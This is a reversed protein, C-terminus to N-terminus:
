QERPNPRFTDDPEGFLITGLFGPIVGLEKVNDTFTQQFLFDIDMQALNDMILKLQINELEILTDIQQRKEEGSLPLNMIRNREQRSDRLIIEGAKLFESVGHFAMVEKSMIPNKDDEFLRNKIDGYLATLFAENRKSLDMQAIDIQKLDRARKILKQWEKHYQSNKIPSAVNFRRTVVSLANNFSSFDAEDERKAIREGTLDEKPILNEVIDFPYQLIGTFYSGILYDIIIPSMQTKEQGEKSRFLFSSLNTSYNSLKKAIERTSARTQLQNIKRLEYVGLVPAGSYFNTNFGLEIFPRLGAPIPTGPLIQSISEAVYRRTVGDSRKFMGDLLGVAVNGFVGLDYPKPFPIFPVEKDLVIKKQLKSEKHDINPLLYNLQKIQDNVLSYEKFKSNFMYLSIEPAVVTASILAAAKAPNEGFLRGTRYLGQISANLFMTNRSFANLLASNGRMGFDTSVERGLFAAGMDSFGAAKALQYEGMRTAYEASEVIKKYGRWGGGLKRFLNKLVNSYYNNADGLVKSTTTVNQSILNKINKPQLAETEKRSAYGMGNLLAKKYNHTQKIADIFGLGSTYIPKFGKPSVGFASNVAGALTDRLVNFVVFPPSYTIARSAYRAYTTFIGKTGFGFAVRDAGQQGLADFVGALNPDQVEYIEAKGNRYVIDAFESAADDSAKFTNAFTLVDLSDLNSLQDKRKAGPRKIVDKDPDFKTGSKKYAKVVKDIAINEIRARQNPTVLSVINGFRDPRLKASQNIMNYLSLKARNRDGALVTQYTYTLLNKYLNLDGEQKQQALKVAGPRSIGLLKRTQRGVASIMGIKETERTLPIFFPNEKLIKTADKRAILGSQVQYELLEDTFVKYQELAKKFNSKRTLTEGYKKKYAAPTMEAFDIYEQRTVKDIPLTKDLKPRRKAIFQMRKSAVYNLFENVENVKDLPDLLEHLGISKGKTFSANKANAKPPLYVGEQIFSHGRTGSSALMRLQFYPQLIPDVKFDKSSYLKRLATVDGKVGTMEEQLIKIFDWQDALNSRVKSFGRSFKGINDESKGTNDPQKKSHKKLNKTPLNNNKALKLNTFKSGLKGGLYPVFFGLGTATLAITGTRVPDIRERLEIEKEVLQNAIDITGFGAGEIGAMSLSGKVLAENKVKSSLEAFKEPSNVIDDIVKKKKVADLVKKKTQKKVQKGIVEQGAKRLVGKTVIGATGGGIINLPDLIGVGLNAFFGSAGRGGEEYFNPLEDWYRTLYSLRARQDNTFDNGTVYIFEKGMALTNAQNWTRDSIFKDVAEKDTYTERDRNTYYDRAVSALKKNDYINDFTYKLSGDTNYQIPIANTATDPKKPISSTDPQEIKTDDDTPTTSEINQFFLEKNKKLEKSSVGAYQDVSASQNVALDGKSLKYM